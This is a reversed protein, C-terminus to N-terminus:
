HRALRRRFSGLGLSLLASLVVLAGSSGSRGTRCGGDGGGTAEPTAEATDGAAVDTVEESDPSAPVDTTAEAADPSVGEPATAACQGEKCSYGDVCDGCSGGCGDDGCTKPGCSPICMCKLPVAGSPDAGTKGCQYVPAADGGWGCTSTQGEPAPCESCFLKGGDCWVVRTQDDCCGAVALDAPCKGASPANVGLCGAPYEAFCTGASCLSGAGCTGCSGGCGDDGCDRSECSPVCALCEGALCTASGTCTGCSGGCGDDGCAAGACQPVCPCAQGCQDSCFAACKADWLNNCCYPHAACVCAECGCHDCGATFTAACGMAQCHSFACVDGAACTGCSKGCGDDGCQRGECSCAVCKGADSCTRGTACAGCAGGCGDPGCEAGACDSVCPCNGGCDSACEQACLDDWGLTCCLDDLACVCAQCGCDACGPQNTAVCGNAADVCKGDAACGKGPPCTGCPKGCGDDGCDKGTCTCAHCVADLGCAEGAKCTGCSGGCGDDGCALGSCDGLCCTGDSMCAREPACAGCTGGCGDDGCQRNACDPQCAQCMGAESCSPKDSPCAGCSGFCGDTGCQRGACSGTCSWACDRPFKGSPDTSAVPGCSYDDWTPEWGCKQNGLSCDVFCLATGDSECWVVRDNACCGELKISADCTGAIKTALPSTCQGNNARAPVAVFHAALLAGLAVQLLQNKM